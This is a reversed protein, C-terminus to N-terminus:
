VIHAVRVQVDFPVMDCMLAFNNAVSEQIRICTKAVEQGRALSVEMKILARGERTFVVKVGDPAISAFRESRKFVRRAGSRGHRALVTTGTIDEAARRAIAALAYRSIGIVGASHNHIVLYDRM